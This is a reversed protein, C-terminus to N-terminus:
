EKSRSTSTLLTNVGRSQFSTVLCDMYVVDYVEQGRRRAKRRRGIEQFGARRYARIARENDGDVKLMVNHLGLCAFGYDLMLITTAAGYGQGWCETEGIYINYEATRSIYEINDLLTV